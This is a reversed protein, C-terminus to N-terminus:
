PSANVARSVAEILGPDEDFTARSVMLIPELRGVRAYRRAIWIRGLVRAVQARTEADDSQGFASAVHAAAPHNVLVAVEVAAHGARRVLFNAQTAAQLSDDVGPGEYRITLEPDAVTMSVGGDDAKGPGDAGFPNSTNYM